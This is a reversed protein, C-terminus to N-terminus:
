RAFKRIVALAEAMAHDGSGSRVARQVCGHLHQELIRLALSDLASQVASVQTLVDICYRDEDLMKGIGRVQGEVRNLRRALEAKGATDRAVAPHKRMSHKRALPM